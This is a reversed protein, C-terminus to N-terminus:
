YATPNSFFNYVDVALYGATEGTAETAVNTTYDVAVDWYATRGTFSVQPAHTEAVLEVVNGATERLKKKNIHGSKYQDYLESVAIGTVLIKYVYVGAIFLAVPLPFMMGLIHLVIDQALGQKASSLIEGINSEISVSNRKRDYKAHIEKTIVPIGDVTFKFNRNPAEPKFFKTLPTGLDKVYAAAAGGGM